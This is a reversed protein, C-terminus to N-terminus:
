AQATQGNSQDQPQQQPQPAPNVGFITPDLNIEQGPSKTTIGLSTPIPPTQAAAAGKTGPMAAIGAVPKSYYRGYYTAEYYDANADHPPPAPKPQEPEQSAAQGMDELAEAVKDVTSPMGGSDAGGQDLPANLAEQTKSTDGPEPIEAPPGLKRPQSDNEALQTGYQGPDAPAGQPAGSGAKEDYIVKGDPTVLQNKDNWKPAKEPDAWQSENSFTEHYPTKYYDSYHLKGDNANVGSTAHPDNDQLGKWYGRMDYDVPGKEDPNFPVSNDKVWGRFKDEDGSSLKTQYDDPAGPKLYAKNREYNDKLQDAPSVPMLTGYRSYTDADAIQTGDGNGSANYRALRRDMDRYIGNALMAMSAGRHLNPNEALERGSFVDGASAGAIRGNIVAAARPAGWYHALYMEKDTPDRGLRGALETRLGKTYAAFGAVQTQVDSTYPVGYKRREAASMQFLGYITKSAHANPNFSSERSAVALAYGPDVGYKPAYYAIEDQISM